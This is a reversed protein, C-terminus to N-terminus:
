MGIKFGKKEQLDIIINEIKVVQKEGLQLAKHHNNYRDFYHMYKDLKM